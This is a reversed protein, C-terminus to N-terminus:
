RQAAQENLLGAGTAARREAHECSSAFSGRCCPRCFLSVFHNSSVSASILNSHSYKQECKIRRHRSPVKNWIPNATSKAFAMVIECNRPELKAVGGHKKGARSGM